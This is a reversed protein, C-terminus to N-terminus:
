GAAISGILLETYSQRHGQERKYGQRRRFNVVRIKEGRGHSKITASVKAGSVTPAGVKIDDGDGILLVDEIEIVDGEAGDLREVKLTEGEAVKYQKGGTRIVAYM